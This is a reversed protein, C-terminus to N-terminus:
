PVQGSVAVAVAAGAVTALFNVADNTMWRLGRAHRTRYQCTHVRRETWTRCQECWRKSQLTAGIVSDFVAGAIGALLIADTVPVDGIGRPLLLSGAFAFLGAAIVAAATGIVTIGGSVGVPLVRGSVISRPPGGWLIGVETAWTDAAAAALAGLGALQLRPDGLLEGALVAVAFLGGNAIVQMANREHATPLVSETREVKRARGFRTILTSLTYYALLLAVWQWGAAAVLTGTVFAAWEGGVTLGGTRRAVVAALGAVLAGTLARVIVSDTHLPLM